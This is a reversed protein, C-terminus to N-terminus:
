SFLYQTQGNITKIKYFTGFMILFSLTSVLGALYVNVSLLITIRNQNSHLALPQFWLRVHTLLSKGTFLYAGKKRM